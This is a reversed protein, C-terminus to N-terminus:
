FCHKLIYDHFLQKAIVETHCPEPVCFCILAIEKEEFVQFIKNYHFKLPNSEFKVESLNKNLAIDFHTKFQNIVQLREKQSNGRMTFPNGLPLPRHCEFKPMSYPLQPKASKNVLYISPTEKEGVVANLKVLGRQKLTTRKILMDNGCMVAIIVSMCGYGDEAM